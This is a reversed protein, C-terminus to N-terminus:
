LSLTHPHWCSRGRDACRPRIRRSHHDSERTVAVGSPGVANADPRHVRPSRASHLAVYRPLQFGQFSSSSRGDSGPAHSWALFGFGPQPQATAAITPLTVGDNDIMMM